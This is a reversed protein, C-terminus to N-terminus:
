KNGNNRSQYRGCHHSNTNMIYPESLSMASLQHYGHKVEGRPCKRRGHCLYVIQM